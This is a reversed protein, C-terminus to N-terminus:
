KVSIGYRVGAINGGAPSREYYAGVFQTNTGTGIEAYPRWAGNHGFRYAEGTLYTGNASLKLGAGPFFAKSTSHPTGYEAWQRVGALGYAAVSGKADGFKWGAAADYLYDLDTKRDFTCGAEGAVRLYWGPKVSALAMGLTNRTTTDKFSRAVRLYISSDEGYSVSTMSMVCLIVVLLWKMSCEGFISLCKQNKQWLM